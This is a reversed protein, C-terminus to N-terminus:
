IGYPATRNHGCCVHRQEAPRRKLSEAFSEATTKAEESVAEQGALSKVVDQVFPDDIRPLWVALIEEVPMGGRISFLVAALCSADKPTIFRM